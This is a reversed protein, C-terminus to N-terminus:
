VISPYLDRWTANQQKILHIKWDRNRNKIQKERTIASDMTEHLEFYVLRHIKYKKSFGEVLGTRHQWVRKGLDSTVGVYLTGNRQSTLIYVAPQKVSAGRRFGMSGAKLLIVAPTLLIVAKLLIVTPALRPILHSM